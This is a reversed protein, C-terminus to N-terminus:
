SIDINLIKKKLKQRNYINVNLIKRKENIFISLIINHKENVSTSTSTRSVYILFTRVVFESM